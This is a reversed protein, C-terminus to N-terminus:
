VLWANWFICSRKRFYLVHRLDVDPPSINEYDAYFQAGNSISVNNFRVRGSSCMLLLSNSTRKM